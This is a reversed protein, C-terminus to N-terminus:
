IISKTSRRPGIDLVGQTQLMGHRSRQRLAGHLQRVDVSSKGMAEIGDYDSCDYRSMHGDDRRFIDRDGGYIRSRRIRVTMLGEGDERADYSGAM